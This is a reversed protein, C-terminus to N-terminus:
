AAIVGAASLVRRGMEAAKAVAAPQSAVARHDFKRVRGRVMVTHVNAVSAHFVVAQVPNVLPSSQEHAWSLVTLDADKGPTISGIRRDLGLAKAGQLTASILVDRAGIPLRELMGGGEHAAANALMRQAQLAFRM